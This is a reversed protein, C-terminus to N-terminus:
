QIAYNKWRKLCHLAATCNRRIRPWHRINQPRACRRALVTLDYEIYEDVVDNWNDAFAPHPKWFQQYAAVSEFTMSLRQAAPGLVADIIQEDDLGEPVQLPLGGDVLLLSSVLHPYLDAFVLSVFAGMSHGIVPIPGASFHDAVRALDAAHVPM